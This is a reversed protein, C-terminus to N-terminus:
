GNKESGIRRWPSPFTEKGGGLIGEGRQPCQFRSHFVSVIVNIFKSDQLAGNFVGIFGKDGYVPLLFNEKEVFCRFFYETIGPLLDQAPVEIPDHRGVAAPIMM